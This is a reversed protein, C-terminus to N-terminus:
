PARDLADLRARLVRLEALVEAVDARTLQEAEEVEAVVERSSGAIKEVFWSAITATVTGLLAIGCLMLGAAVLRGEATVPYRDGYGVTTITTVTWWVADGFSTISSDPDAREADYVALAAVLGVLATAGSVYVTVRGRLDDRLRRDLVTLVTVVRLARLQRFMPLVILVLDLLHRRVFRRRDRALRLRWLYDLAFVAWTGWLLVELVLRAAGGVPALVSVAYGALFLVALGTLPWDSRREWDLLRVESDHAGDVM